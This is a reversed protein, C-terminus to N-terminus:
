VNRRGKKKNKTLAVSVSNSTTGILSAIESPKFGVQNLLLIQETRSLGRTVFTALLKNTKQQEILLELYTDM